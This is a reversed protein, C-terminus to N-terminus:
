SLAMLMTMPLSQLESGSLLLSVSLLFCVHWGSGRCLLLHIQDGAFTQLNRRTTQCVEDCYGFHADAMIQRLCVFSLYYEEKTESRPPSLASSISCFYGALPPVFCGM